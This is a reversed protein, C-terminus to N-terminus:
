EIVIWSTTDPDYYKDVDVGDITRGGQYRNNEPVYGWFLMDSPLNDGDYPLSRGQDDVTPEALNPVWNYESDLHYLNYHDPNLTGIFKNATGTHGPIDTTHWTMGIGAYRGRLNARDSGHKFTQKWSVGDTSYSFNDVCWQENASDNGEVIHEDGVIEVRLVINNSDLEAFYAM